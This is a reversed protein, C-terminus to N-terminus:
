FCSPAQQPNPNGNIIRQGDIICLGSQGSSTATIADWHQVLGCDVEILENNNDVIKHMNFFAIELVV